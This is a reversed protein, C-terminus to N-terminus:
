RRLLLLHYIRRKRHSEITAQLSAQYEPHAPHGPPPIAILTGPLHVGPIHGPPFGFPNM